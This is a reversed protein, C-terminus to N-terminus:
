SRRTKSSEAVAAAAEAEDQPELPHMALDIAAWTTYSIPYFLIPALVAVPVAVALIRGVAIDPYTTIVGVLLVVGILAFTVITNM